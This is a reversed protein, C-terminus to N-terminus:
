DWGVPQSGEDHVTVVFESDDEREAAVYSASVEDSAATLWKGGALHAVWGAVCMGSECRWEAQHWTQPTLEIQAIVLDLLPLGRLPTSADVPAADVASATTQTM